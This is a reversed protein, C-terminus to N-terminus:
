NKFTEKLDVIKEVELSTNIMLWNEIEKQQEELKEQAFETMMYIVASIPYQREVATKLDMPKKNKYKELIESLM